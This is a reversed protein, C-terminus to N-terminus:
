SRTVTWCVLHLRLIHMLTRSLHCLPQFNKDAWHLITFMCQNSSVALLSFHSYFFVPWSGIGSWSLVSSLQSPCTSLFHHCCHWVLVVASMADGSFPRGFLASPFTIKSFHNTCCTEPVAAPLHFHCCSHSISWHSQCTLTKCTLTYCCQFM